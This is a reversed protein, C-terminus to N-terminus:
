PSTQSMKFTFLDLLNELIKTSGFHVSSDRGVGHSNLVNKLGINEFEPPKLNYHEHNCIYKQSSTIFDRRRM